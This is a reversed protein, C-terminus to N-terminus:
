GAKNESEKDQRIKEFSIIKGGMDGTADEVPRRTMHAYAGITTQLDKHGLLVRIVEVPTGSSILWSAVTRRLDHITLNEIGARELIRKWAWKPEKIPQGTNRESPFVWPSGHARPLTQMIQLAPASLPVFRVEDNKTRVLRIEKREFSVDAWRLTLLENRRCGTMLCLKFFARLHPNPEENIAELLPGMESEQVYRTRKEERYKTTLSAPNGMGEPVFGTRRGFEYISHILSRTRNSDYPYGRTTGIENLLRVVQQRTVDKARKKGFVPLLHDRMRREDERWTKKHIKSHQELYASALEKFTTSEREEQKEGLPDGGAVIKGLLTKAMERAAQVSLAPYAGLVVRRRRGKSRYDLIFSKRGLSKPGPPYLRVGLGDM